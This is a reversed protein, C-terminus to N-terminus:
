VKLDCDGVTILVKISERVLTRFFPKPTLHGGMSPAHIVTSNKVATQVLVDRSTSVEVFRHACDCVVDRYHKRWGVVSSRM